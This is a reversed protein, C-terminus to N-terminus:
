YWYPWYPWWPGGWYPDRYRGYWYPPVGYGDYYPPPYTYPYIKFVHIEVISVVPYRYEMEGLPMVKEGEVKGVLAVLRGSKYIMNDLYRSTVALFRGGSPSTEDPVDDSGLKFEVIEVQSGEKTNKTDAIVGGLKVYKGVYAKPDSKLQEFKLPQTVMSEAEKSFVHACGTLMLFSLCLLLTSKM